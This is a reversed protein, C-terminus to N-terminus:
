RGAAERLRRQREATPPHTSLFAPLSARRKNEALREVRDYFDIYPDLPVQNAQLFRIAYADAEREFDRSYHLVGFAIPVNAVVSSFDGWLLAALAGIGLSQLVHRLSHREAVHGLEHGVVGLIAEDSDAVEVLGDLLVITGGPLTLANVGGPGDVRRFELRYAVDPAAAAVAAEVRQAIAYRRLVPLRSPEFYNADLQEMVETGIRQELGDPLHSALWRSAAPLGHVYAFALVGALGALAALSSWWMRQMEQVPSPFVGAGQLARDFRGDADPVELMGHGDLRVLRPAANWRESFRAPDVPVREVATGEPTSVVLTRGQVHVRVDQAQATEGDFRTAPLAPDRSAAPASGTRIGSV